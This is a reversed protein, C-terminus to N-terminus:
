KTWPADKSHDTHCELCNFKGQEDDLLSNEGQHCALCHKYEEPAIYAPTFKGEIYENLLEATRAATDGTVKACRDKKSDDNIRAGAASAWISVSQHCLPSNAVTTIQNKIKCYSEHKNSPFPFLSYWGILENGISAHDKAALNIVALSGNLAGCLTGWSYAGGAGYQFMNLPITNWPYGCVEELSTLLASAAGYMCGFKFYNEYGRKRVLEVDLKKYKWPLPPPANTKSNKQNEQIPTKEGAITSDDGCGAIFSTALLGAALTGTSQLFNRRSVEVMAKQSFGKEKTM